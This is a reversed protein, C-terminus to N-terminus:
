GKYIHSKSIIINWNGLSKGDGLLIEIITIFIKFLEAVYYNFTYCFAKSPYTFIVTYNYVYM